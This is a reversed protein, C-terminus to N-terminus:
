IHILSLFFGKGRVIFEREGEEIVEAGVDVNSEQIARLLASFHVDYAILKNPDVDIQYEKKFGGISAVESVGESAQLQFKVYFDQISRLEALSKPNKSDKSNQISYWFVQGLGTADPGLQPRVGEPLDKTATSIKELLRSRSWYFDVDEKFIVYISSFGFASSSSDRICMESGM